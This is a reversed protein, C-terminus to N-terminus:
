ATLATRSRGATPMTLRQKVHRPSHLFFLGNQNGAPGTIDPRMGAHSQLFRAPPHHHRVTQDVATGFGQGPNGFDGALGRNKVPDIEPLPGGQGGNKGLLLHRRHDM